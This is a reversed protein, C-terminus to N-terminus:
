WNVLEGIRWNVLEGIHPAFKLFTISHSNPYPFFIFDNEQM